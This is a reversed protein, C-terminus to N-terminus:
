IVRFFAVCIEILILVVIAGEIRLSKQSTIQDVLLENIQRLVELKNRLQRQWHPIGFEAVAARHIRAFWTDGLFTLSNDIRETIETVDVFIQMIKRSLRQFHSSRFFASHEPELEKYLRHLSMGVLNDYARLELLQMSALELLEPVDASGTPDLLLASNWDIVVLDDPGYSFSAHVFNLRESYAIPKTEALLLRPIDLAQGLSEASCAPSTAQLYFITYDETVVSVEGPKCAKAITSRIEEAVPQAAQTILDEAEKVQAAFGILEEPGLPSPLDISFTVVLAGVDYIRVLVECPPRGALGCPRPALSM